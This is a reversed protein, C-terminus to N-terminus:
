LPRVRSVAHSNRQDVAFPGGQAGSVLCPQRRLIEIRLAALTPRKCGAHAPLLAHLRYGIAGFRRAQDIAQAQLRMGLAPIVALGIARFFDHM